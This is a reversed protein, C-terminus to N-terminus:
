THTQIIRGQSRKFIVSHSRWVERDRSKDRLIVEYNQGLAGRDRLIETAYRLVLM